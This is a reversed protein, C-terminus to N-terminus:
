PSTEPEQKVLRLTAERLMEAKAQSEEARGRLYRALEPDLGPQQALDRVFIAKEQLARMSNILSHEIADDFEAILSEASYGHGTHCRFRVRSEEEVRLLVGHCEPCAYTSPQGLQQVGAEIPSTEQAIEVEIRTHEPVVYGGAEAIDERVLRDLTAAMEAAALRHDVKVHLLANRPMSEVLADEPEQVIAVGGMRKVAWLGATGDDLGGSLVVGILRPGYAQAASRFLPDVAPRFRNERPGRTARVRKPEVVLHHDPCPVYITGAALAERTRVMVADLRGARRLIGDLVGPSDPAMHVVVCIAAPFDRPLSAIIVKLADIGGASAGVVVLDRRM